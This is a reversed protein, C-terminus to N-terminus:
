GAARQMEKRTNDNSLGIKLKSYLSILHVAVSKITQPSSTGPHQTAYAGVTMRHAPWYRYDSSKRALVEGYIEWCGASAGIYHHTPGVKDPM